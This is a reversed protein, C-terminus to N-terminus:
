KGLNEGQRTLVFDEHGSEYKLLTGKIKVDDMLRMGGYRHALANRLSAELNRAVSPRMSDIEAGSSQGLINGNTALQDPDVSVAVSSPDISLSIEDDDVVTWTGSASAMASATLSLPEIASGEAVVQTNMSIVASIYLPGLPFKGDSIATSDPAFYYTDTITATVAQGDTITEPTGAWVGTLHNALRKEGSECSTALGAGAACLLTGILIQSFKM